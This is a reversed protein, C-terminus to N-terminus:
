CCCAQGLQTLYSVFVLFVCPHPYRNGHWIVFWVHFAWSIQRSWFSVTFLVVNFHRSELGFCGTWLLNMIYGDEEERDTHRHLIM